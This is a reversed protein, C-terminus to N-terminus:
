VETGEAGAGASAGPVSCHSCSVVTEEEESGVERLELDPSGPRAGLAEGHVRATGAAFAAAPALAGGPEKEGVRRAFSPLFRGLHDELFRREADRCVAAREAEGREGALARKLAVFAVFEAEVAVHDCRERAVRSVDVVFARYFAAVDGLRHSKGLFHEPGYEIEYAPCPGRVSHGLVRVRERDVGERGASAFAARFRGWSAALGAGGGGDLAEIAAGAEALFGPDALAAELVEDPERLMAAAVSWAAALARPTTSRSSRIRM